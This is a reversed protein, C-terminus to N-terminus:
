FHQYRLHRLLKILWCSALGDRKYICFNTHAHTLWGRYGIDMLHPTQNACDRIKWLYFSYYNIKNVYLLIKFFTCRKGLFANAANPMRACSRSCCMDDRPTHRLRLVQIWLIIINLCSTLPRHMEAETRQDDFKVSIIIFYFSITSDAAPGDSCAISVILLFACAGLPVCVLTVLQCTFSTSTRAGSM